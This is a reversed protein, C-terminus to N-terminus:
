PKTVMRTSKIRTNACPDIRTPSLREPGASHCLTWILRSHFSRLGKIKNSGERIALVLHKHTQQPGFINEHCAIAITSYLLAASNNRSRQM